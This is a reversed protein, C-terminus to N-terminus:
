AMLRIAEERALRVDRMPDSWAKEAAALQGDDVIRRQSSAYAKM